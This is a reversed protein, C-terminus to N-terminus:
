LLALPLCKLWNLKTEKALKTLVNKLTQNMREVRGSSQPRWPTHFKWYIDLVKMLQQLIRSTFHPGRDSDIINVIGYRPIIQELLTKSIVEAIARTTTVAEVWHTLHDIIVLLYKYNKTTPLETFDIQVSQFPRKALERGGSPTRRM